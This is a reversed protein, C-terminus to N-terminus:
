GRTASRLQRDATTTLIGVVYLGILGVTILGGALVSSALNGTGDPDIYRYVHYVFLTGSAGGALSVLLHMIFFISFANVRKVRGAPLGLLANM